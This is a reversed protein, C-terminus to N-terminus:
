LEVPINVPHLWALGLHRHHSLTAWTWLIIKGVIRPSFHIKHNEEQSLWWLKFISQTSVEIIYRRRILTKKKKLFFTSEWAKKVPFYRTWGNM